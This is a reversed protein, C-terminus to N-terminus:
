RGWREVLNSVWGAAERVDATRAHANVRVDAFEPPYLAAITTRLLDVGGAARTERRIDTLTHANFDRGTRESAFERAISALEAFAEERTLSGGEHRTVVDAIRARWVDRGHAGSHAGKPRPAAKPRKPRSLFWVAFASAAATLLLAVAVAGFAGASAFPEAPVLDDLKIGSTM